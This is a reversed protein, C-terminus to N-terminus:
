PNKNLAGSKHREREIIIKKKCQTSDEKWNLGAALPGATKKREGQQRGWQTHITGHVDNVVQVSM